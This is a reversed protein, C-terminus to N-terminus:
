CSFSGFTPSSRIPLMINLWTTVIIVSCQSQIITHNTVVTNCDSSNSIPIVGRIDECSHWHVDQLPIIRNNIRKVSSAEKIGILLSQSIVCNYRESLATLRSISPCHRINKPLFILDMPSLSKIICCHL